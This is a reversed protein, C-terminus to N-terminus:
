DELKIAEWWGAFSFADDSSDLYEDSIRHNIEIIKNLRAEDQSNTFNIKSDLQKIFLLERQTSSDTYKTYVPAVFDNIYTQVNTPFMSSEQYKLYEYVYLKIQNKTATDNDNYINEIIIKDDGNMIAINTYIGNVDDKKEFKASSRKTISSLVLMSYGETTKWGQANDATYFDSDVYENPYTDYISIEKYLDRIRGKIETPCASENSLNESTSNTVDSYDTISLQIGARKYEAWIKEPETPDYEDRNPDYNEIGNTFKQCSNFEEVMTKLTDLEAGSAYKMRTVMTQILEITLEKYTKTPSTPVITDWNFDKDANGDEDMDVYALLNSASAQYKKEYAMSSYTEVLTYFKENSGFDTLIKNSAENVRYYNDIIRDIDSDHFYLMLFNYKGLTSPYSSLQNNSFYALLLEITRKYDSRNKNTEKYEESDKIVQKSLLDIATTVGSKEVLSEFIENITYHTTKGKYKLSFLTNSKPANKHTKSYSTNVASYAIEVNEDYIYTTVKAIKESVANSIYTDTLEDWMMEEILKAKYSAKAEPIETDDISDLLKYEDRLPKESIKFVLYYHDKYSQGNVSYRSEGQTYDPNVNLTKNVYFKFDEDIKNLDEQTYTIRDKYSEWETSSVTDEPSTTEVGKIYNTVIKETVKRQNITLNTRDTYQSPLADKYTYIYNYIAVYLDFIASEGGISMINFCKESNAAKSVDFDDYYKSYKTDTKTGQPIFYFSDNYVKVGFAKLTSNIEDTNTFRIIIAQRDEAYQYHESHYQIIDEDTYYYNDEDRDDNYDDIYDELYDYALAKQACVDIYDEYYEYLYYTTELSGSFKKVAHDEIYDQSLKASDITKNEDVYATDIYKEVNVKVVKPLMLKLNDFSDTGYIGTFASLELFDFYRKQKEISVTTTKNDFVSIADAIETKYSALVVENIKKSIEDTANWKLENWLDGNTVKYKGDKSTAYVTDTGINSIKTEKCSVLSFVSFVSLVVLTFKKFKGNKIM